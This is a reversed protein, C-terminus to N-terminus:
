EGRALRNGEGVIFQFTAGRNMNASAWLRGGHAEIISRCISLGLGLGSPKTTYYPDFVQELMAPVLGPGTDRLTVLVNAGVKSTTILLHRPGEGVSSMAEIANIILNLIVQQLQVRDGQLVPLDDALEAHVSVGNKVAEGRTLEIVERIAENIALRDRRPPVKRILARMCGVVDRARNGNQVIFALSRRVREMDAPRRDLWHLAAEAHTIMATLPQSLQHPISAALRGMTAVRNAHALETHMERFLENSERGDISPRPSEERVAYGQLDAALGSSQMDAMALEKV